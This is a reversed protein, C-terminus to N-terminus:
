VLNLARNIDWKIPIPAIMRLDAWYMKLDSDLGFM